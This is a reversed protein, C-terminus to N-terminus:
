TGSSEGRPGCNRERVYEQAQFEEPEWGVIKGRLLIFFGGRLDRRYSWPNSTYDTVEESMNEGEKTPTFPSSGEVRLNHNQHEVM